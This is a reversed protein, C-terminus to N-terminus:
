KKQKVSKQVLTNEKGATKKNGAGNSAVEKEKGKTTKAETSNSVRLKKRPDVKATKAAVPSEISESESEMDVIPKKARTARKANKPTFNKLPTLAAMKSTEVETSGESESCYSSDDDGSVNYDENWENEIKDFVASM